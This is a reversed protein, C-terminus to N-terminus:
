GSVIYIRLPDGTSSAAASPVDVTVSCNIVTTASESRTSAM